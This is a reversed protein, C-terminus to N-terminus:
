RDIWIGRYIRQPAPIRIRISTNASGTNPMLRLESLTELDLRGTLTLRRARQFTLVAEETAPGPLGDVIDRYHGRAALLSQAKRLTQQQVILPARAYPTGAFLVPFDASPADLPAPPALVSPDREPAEADPPELPAVADPANRRNEERRLFERDSEARSDERRLHVPPAKSPAPAPPAPKTQPRSSSIAPAKRPGKGLAGLTEANLTGTVELGNRIQYRRLAATTEANTQGSVEGYYFGLSTLESQVDRLQNDALATAALLLTALSLLKKM